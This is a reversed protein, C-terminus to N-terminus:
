YLKPVVRLHSVVMTSESKLVDKATSQIADLVGRKFDAGNPDTDIDVEVVLTKVLTLGEPTWEFWTRSVGDIKGLHERMIAKTEKSMTMFELPHWHFIIIEAGECHHERSRHVRIEFPRGHHTASGYSAKDFQQGALRDLGRTLDLV